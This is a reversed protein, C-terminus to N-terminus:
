ISKLNVTALVRNDFLFSVGAGLRFVEVCGRPMKKEEKEEEEEEEEEENDRDDKEHDTCGRRRRNRDRASKSEGEGEGAELHGDEEDEENGGEDADGEDGEDDEEGEGGAVKDSCGVCIQKRSATQSIKKPVLNCRSPSFLAATTSVFTDCAPLHM